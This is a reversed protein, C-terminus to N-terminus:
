RPSLESIAQRVLENEDKQLREVLAPVAFEPHQRIIEAVYLRAWWNENISLKHLASIADAKVNLFETPFGNEKRWIADSIVHENWLMEKTRTARATPGPGELERQVKDDAHLFALFAHGSARGFIYTVFGDPLPENRSFRSGIYKEYEGYNASHPTRHLESVANDQFQFWDRVFERLEPDSADLEPALAKIIASKPISALELMARVALVSEGDTLKEAFYALQQVLLVNDGEAFSRLKQLECYASVGGDCGDAENMVADFTRQIQSQLQINPEISSM